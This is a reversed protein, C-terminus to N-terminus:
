VMLRLRGAPALRAAPLQALQRRAQRTRANM